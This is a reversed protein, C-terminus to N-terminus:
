RGPEGLTPARTADASTTSIGTEAPTYARIGSDPQRVPRHVRVGATGGFGPALWLAGLWIPKWFQHGATRAGPRGRAHYDGERLGPM